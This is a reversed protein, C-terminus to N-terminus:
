SYRAVLAATTKAGTSPDTYYIVSGVAICTTASTCSVGSLVGYVGLCSLTLTGCLFTGQRVSPTPQVAWRRGNWREALLYDGTGGGQRNGVAVCMRASVCSVDSLYDNEEAAGPNRPNAARWRTGNWREASSFTDCNGCGSIGVAMCASASTCSVGTLADSQEGPDATPVHQAHWSVGSWRAAYNGNLDDGVAICTTAPV